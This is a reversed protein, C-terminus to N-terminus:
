RVRDTLSFLKGTEVGVARSSHHQDHVPAPLSARGRCSLGPGGEAADDVCASGALFRRRRLGIRGSFTKVKIVLYKERVPALIGGSIGPKLGWLAPLTTNIM